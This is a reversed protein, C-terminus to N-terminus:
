NGQAQESIRRQQQALAQSDGPHNRKQLAEAVRQQLSAPKHDDNKFKAQVDEIDIRIGRVGKLMPGYPKSGAEMPAHDGEPQFHALQRRIIDAKAEEEDIIHATGIFHVAAYYSTPVGETPDSGENARWSGPIFAYSGVVCLSVEGNAAICSFIPNDQALHLWIIDGDLLFHTPVVDPAHGDPGNAVLVGFDHGQKMWTQWEADSRAADWKRILM